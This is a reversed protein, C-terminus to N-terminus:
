NIRLTAQCTAWHRTLAFYMELNWWNVTFLVLRYWPEEVNEVSIKVTTEVLADAFKQAVGGPMMDEAGATRINQISCFCIKFSSSNITVGDGHVDWNM